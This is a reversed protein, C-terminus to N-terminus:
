KKEHSIADEKHEEYWQPNDYIEKSHGKPVAKPRPRWPNDELDGGQAYENYADRILNLDTIGNDLGLKIYSTKDKMSLDKWQKM